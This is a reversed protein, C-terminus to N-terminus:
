NRLRAHRAVWQWIQTTRASDAFIILHEFASKGVQKEILRRTAYDPVQAGPSSTCAFVRVGRKDAVPQLSFSHGGAQITLAPGPFDWGLEQTFLSTFDFQQLRQRVAPTDLAM